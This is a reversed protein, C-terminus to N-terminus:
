SDGNDTLEKFLRVFEGAVANLDFEREATERNVQICKEKDARWDALADEMAKSFARLDEIDATYPTYPNGHGAVVQTGCALTERVVRTAIRHPTIVMDAASYVDQLNSVIPRVTGLVGRDALCDLLVDRGRGSDTCAYVHVRAEPHRDAFLGFAHLVHFPDKDKRWVDCAVVNVEGAKGDYGYTGEKRTWRDLDVFPTMERVHPFLLRLYDGYGPWLTVLMKWRPDESMKHYSSWIPTGGDREIRYSSNPRGHAVHIRPQDCGDFRSDLGSHSVLLDSEEVAWEVPAICVERDEDWAGPRASIDEQHTVAKFHKGCEPCDVEIGDIKKKGRVDKAYPRPDVIHADIGLQREAYVLERATEYLGCQHPTCPAVHAVRLEEREKV